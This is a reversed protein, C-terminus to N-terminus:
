DGNDCNFDEPLSKGKALCVSPVDALLLRRFNEPGLFESAASVRQTEVLKAVECEMLARMQGIYQGVNESCSLRIWSDLCLLVASGNSELRFQKGAALAVMLGSVLTTHELSSRLEANRTKEVFLIWESALNKQTKKRLLCSSRSVQVADDGECILQHKNARDMYALKPYLGATLALRIMNTDKDFSSALRVSSQNFRFLRHVTDRLTHVASVFLEMSNRCVFNRECFEYVRYRKLKVYEEYLQLAAMSDSMTDGTFQRRANQQDWKKEREMTLIFPDRVSHFAAIISMSGLCRFYISYVLCKGLQVGLPLEAIIRGLPTIHEEFDHLVGLLRLKSCAQAVAEPQPPDLARALFSAILYDPAAVKTLLCIEDLTRRKIEPITYLNMKALRDSDYLRYCIGHRLRGARGARQQADAQSIWTTTLQSADSDQDYTKMKCRGTDIVYLLDPITISTQGINTSLIIKLRVNRYVQLAKQQESSDVQSHLMMIKIQDLPLSTKLRDMLTTMENYGPLYVIVAGHDGNLLLLELLSVILDNDIEPDIITRGGHYAALLEGPQVEDNTEGMYQEMRPTMYGTESLIHELQFTKVDFTRGEVDMVTAKGFYESLAELNMTASMLVLRLHPNKQLAMKTALLLFDTDLDREHVEDIIFHTTSKFFAEGDMTLARLLCGSTTLVLVTHSSCKSNMRIQYGVTSGLAEGREESIRESVSMAAIRRPQSVIVRVPTRHETAWELIYQPLQTSKGSGTAGKIILVQERLLTSLIKDRHKYIPLSQREQRISNSRAGPPILKHGVLGFNNPRRDLMEQQNGRWNDPKGASLRRKVAGNMSILLKLLEPSKYLTAQICKADPLDKLPLRKITLVRNDAFGDSVTKLGATHAVRHVFCRQAKNLGPFKRELDSSQRFDAVLKRLSIMEEIYLPEGEGAKAAKGSKAKPRTAKKAVGQGNTLLVPVHGQSPAEKKKGRRRAGKAVETKNEAM